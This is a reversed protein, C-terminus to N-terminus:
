YCVAAFLLFFGYFYIVSVCVIEVPQYCILKM